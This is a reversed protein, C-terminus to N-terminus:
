VHELFRKFLSRTISIASHRDGAFIWSTKPYKIMISTLRNMLLPGRIKLSRCRSAPIGSMKPFELIYTLPFECIIYSFNLAAMRELEREFRTSFLNNCIEATSKKRDISILHEYGEISYDGTKLRAVITGAPWSKKTFTWPQKERTDIIIKM